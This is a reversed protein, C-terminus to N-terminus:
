PMSLWEEVFMVLDRMDILDDPPESIDYASDWNADGPQTRWANSLGGLDAIDVFFDENFDGASPIPGVYEYEAIRKRDNDLNESSLLRDGATM